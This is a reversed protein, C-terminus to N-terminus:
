RAHHPTALHPVDFVYWQAVLHKRFDCDTFRRRATMGVRLDVNAIM